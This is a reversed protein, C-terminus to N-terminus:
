PRPIQNTSVKATRARKRLAQQQEPPAAITSFPLRELQGLALLIDAYHAMSGQGTSEIKRLTSYAVGARNALALQTLNQKLREQAVHQGLAVLVNTTKKITM